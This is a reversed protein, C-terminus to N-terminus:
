ENMLDYLNKKVFFYSDDKLRLEYADGNEFSIIRGTYSVTGDKGTIKTFTLRAGNFESSRIVVSQISNDYKSAASVVQGDFKFSIDTGLDSSVTEGNVNKLFGKLMDLNVKITEPLSSFLKPKSYNPETLPASEQASLNTIIVSLAIVACFLKLNRM